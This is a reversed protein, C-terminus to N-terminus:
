IEIFLKEELYLFKFLQNLQLFEDRIEKITLAKGAEKIHEKFNKDCKEMVLVKENENDYNGYYEVSNNKFNLTQLIEIENNIDTKYDKLENMQYNLKMKELNIKKLCVEKKDKINYASYINGFLGSYLLKINKFDSEKYKKKIIIYDTIINKLLYGINVYKNNYRYGGVHIGILKKTDINIIPGGGGGSETSCSHQLIENDCLKIIHGYSVSLEGNKPYQPIFIEKKNKIYQFDDFEYFNYIKDKKPIIEIITIGCGIMKKSYITKNNNVKIKIQKNDKGVKLNIENLYEKELIYDLTILVPYEQDQYLIYAFFGSGFGSSTVKEVTDKTVMEIQCMCKKQEIMKEICDFPVIPGDLIVM